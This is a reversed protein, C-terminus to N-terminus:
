VPRLIALKAPRRHDHSARGSARPERPLRRHVRARAPDPVRPPTCDLSLLTKYGRAHAPNARRPAARPPQASLAHEPMAQARRVRTTNM